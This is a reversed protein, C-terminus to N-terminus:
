LHQKRGRAPLKRGQAATPSVHLQVSTGKHSQGRGAFCGLSPTDQSPLPHPPGQGEATKRWHSRTSPFPPAPTHGRLQACPQVGGSHPKLARCSRAPPQSTGRTECDFRAKSDPYLLWSPRGAAEEPCGTM